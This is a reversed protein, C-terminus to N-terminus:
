DPASSKGQIRIKGGGASEVEILRDQLPAASEPAGRWGSLSATTEFSLTSPRKSRDGYPAVSLSNTAICPLRPLLGTPNLDYFHYFMNMLGSTLSSLCIAVRHPGIPVSRLMFEKAARIDWRSIPSVIIAVSSRFVFVGPGPDASAPPSTM